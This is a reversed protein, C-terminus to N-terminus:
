GPARAHTRGGFTFYFTAGKGEISEAWVRGGHRDIIQHVNALGIGTGPFESQSHLRQFNGFLKDVCSMDFGAGNDKVSYVRQGDAGPEAAFSIEAVDRRSTFKWANGLLNELVMMMLRPDCQARLGAQVRAVLIRWHDREQLDALVTSAMASLDIDTMQADAQTIRALALLAETYENMQKAAARIRSLYHRNRESGSEDLSRALLESFGDITGIPARLDHALSRTLGKLKANLRLIEERSRIRETIDRLVVTAHATGDSALHQALSIEAEFRSGDGCVMTLEGKAKGTCHCEDLLARLRTDEPAILHVRGRQCIEEQSMGFMACAAANARFVEGEQRTLLIGDISSEFLGCYREECGVFSEVTDKAAMSPRQNLQRASRWLPESPSNKSDSVLKAATCRM